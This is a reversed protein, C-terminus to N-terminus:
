LFGYTEVEVRFPAECGQQCSSLWTSKVAEFKTSAQCNKFITLFGLIVTSNSLLGRHWEVSRSTDTNDHSASILNRIYGDYSSLLASTASSVRTNFNWGAMVRSYVGPEQRLELFDMLRGRWRSILCLERANRAWCNWTGLVVRFSGQNAQHFDM